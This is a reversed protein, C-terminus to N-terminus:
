GPPKTTKLRNELQETRERVYAALSDDYRDGIVLLLQQIVFDEDTMGEVAREDMHDLARRVLDEHM